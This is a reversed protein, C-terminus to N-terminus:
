VIHKQNSFLLCEISIIIDDILVPKGLCLDAGFNYYLKITNELLDPLLIILPINKTRKHRRIIELVKYGGFIPFSSDLIIVDIKNSYLISIISKINTSIYLRYHFEKKIASILINSVPKNDILLINKGM